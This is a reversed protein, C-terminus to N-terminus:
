MPERLVPNDVTVYGCYCPVQSCKPCGHSFYKVLELELNIYTCNAVAFINTVLDVLEETIKEFWLSSHTAQYNRLAEALEGMEEALHMASDQLKNQYIDAFMTQWGGISTPRSRLPVERKSREIARERCVCPCENCYPCYGPFCNWIQDELDVHLRNAIACSYSVAMCLHYSLDELKNKRVAKLVQTVHRHLCALLHETPYNRDNVLGYIDHNTKQLDAINSHAIFYM